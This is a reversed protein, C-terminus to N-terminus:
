KTNEVKELEDLSQESLEKDANVKDSKIDYIDSALVYLALKDPDTNLLDDLSIINNEILVAIDKKAYDKIDSGDLISTDAENSIDMLKQYARSAMLVIDLLNAEKDPNFNGKEDGFIIGAQQANYIGKYNEDDKSVDAFSVDGAEEDCGILRALFAAAEGRTLSLIKDADATSLYKEVSLHSDIASEAVYYSVIYAGFHNYHTNDYGKDGKTYDNYISHMVKIEEKGALNYLSETFATADILEVDTEQALERVADDYKGHSDTVKGEDDFKRRSVPTLLIPVAGKDQALKIYNNYLSYKFSGETQTDGEPDTYRKQLDEENSKKADNHGFQIFLFDGDKLDDCLKKYNDETTFSKSSRGALALDEVKASDDKIWRDLYMGWGARPVAYDDDNGYICATSDGVIYITPVDEQAAASISGFSVTGAFIVASIVGCFLKKIKM